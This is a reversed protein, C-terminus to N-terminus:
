IVVIIYTNSKFLTVLSATNFSFVSLVGIGAGVGMVVAAVSSVWFCFCCGCGCDSTFSDCFIGAEM